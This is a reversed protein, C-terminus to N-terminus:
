RLGARSAPVGPGLQHFPDEAELHEDTAVAAAFSLRERQAIVLADDALDELVEVQGEVSWGDPGCSRRRLGREGQNSSSEASSRPQCVLVRRLVGVTQESGRLDAIRGRISKANRVGRAEEELM